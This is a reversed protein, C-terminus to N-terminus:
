YFAYRAVLLFIWRTSRPLIYYIFAILGIVPFLILPNLYALQM